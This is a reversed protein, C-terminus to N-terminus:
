CYFIFCKTETSGQDGTLVFNRADNQARFPSSNRIEELQYIFDPGENLFQVQCCVEGKVAKRHMDNSFSHLSKGTTVFNLFTDSVYEKVTVM